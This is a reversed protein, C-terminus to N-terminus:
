GRKAGTKDARYAVLFDEPNDLETEVRLTSNILYLIAVPYGIISICLLWFVTWSGIFEYRVIKSM